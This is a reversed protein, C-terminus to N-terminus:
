KISTLISCRPHSKWKSLLTNKKEWTQFSCRCTPEQKELMEWLEWSYCPPSCSRWQQQTVLTRPRFRPSAKVHLVIHLCNLGSSFCVFGWFNMSVRCRSELGLGWCSPRHSLNRQTRLSPLHLNSTTMNTPCTEDKGHLGSSRWSAVDSAASAGGCNSNGLVSSNELEESVTTHQTAHLQLQWRVCLLQKSDKTLQQHRSCRM